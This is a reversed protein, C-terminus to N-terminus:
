DNPQEKVGYNLAEDIIEFTHPLIMDNCVMMERALKLAEELKILRSESFRWATERCKCHPFECDPDACKTDTM